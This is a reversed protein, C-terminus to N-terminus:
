RRKPLAKAKPTVRIEFLLSRGQAPDGVRCLTTGEALGTVAFVNGAGKQKMEPRVIKLDDCIMGVQIGVDTEVTKGVEVELKLVGTQAPLPAALVIALLASWM